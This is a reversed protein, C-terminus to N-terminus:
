LGYKSGVEVGFWLIIGGAIMSGVGFYWETATIHSTKLLAELPGFVLLLIGIDRFAEAWLKIKKGREETSVSAIKFEESGETFPKGDCLRGHRGVGLFQACFNPVSWFFPESKETGYNSIAM